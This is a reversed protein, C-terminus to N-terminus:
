PAEGFPENGDYNVEDPTITRGSFQAAVKPDFPTTSGARCAYEWEAESPLRLDLGPLSSNLRDIFTVADKWSVQEVPRDDGEFHSPNDGMVASYLAQSVATEFLWFGESFIVEVQPGEDDFRGEEDPPSGLLFLGPRCWRLRQTVDAFTFDTFVGFEDQGWGSAWTPPVGSVLPHWGTDIKSPMLVPNMLAVPASRDQEASLGDDQLRTQERASSPLGDGELRRAPPPSESAEMRALIILALEQIKHELESQDYKARSFQRWDDYQRSALERAPEGDQAELVPASLWYIPLISESRGDATERSLFHKLEAQCAESAFYKPSMIPILFHSRDLARGLAERWSEGLAIDDTDQFVEYGENGSRYRIEDELRKRIYSLLNNSYADDSRAYSFFVVVQGSQAEGAM